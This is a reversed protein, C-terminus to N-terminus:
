GPALSATSVPTDKVARGPWTVAIMPLVPAPLAAPPLPVPALALASAKPPPPLPMAPKVTAAFPDLLPNMGAGSDSPPAQAVAATALLPLVFLLVAKTM